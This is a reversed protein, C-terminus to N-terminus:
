RSIGGRKVGMQSVDWSGAAVISSVMSQKNGFTLDSLEGGSRSRFISPSGPADDWGIGLEAWWTCGMGSRDRLTLLGKQLIMDLLPVQVLTAGLRVEWPFSGTTLAVSTTHYWSM